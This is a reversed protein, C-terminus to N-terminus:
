DDDIVKGRYVRRGKKKEPEAADTAGPADPTEGPEAASAEEQTTDADADAAPRPSAAPANLHGRLTMAAAQVMSSRSRGAYDLLVEMFDPDAFSLRGAAPFESRLARKLEGALTLTKRDYMDFNRATDTGTRM